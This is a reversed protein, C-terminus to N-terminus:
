AAASGSEQNPYIVSRLRQMQGRRMYQVVNRPVPSRERRVSAAWYGYFRLLSAVGHPKEKVRRLCKLAQFVPHYGLLYEAKGARMQSRWASTEATGSRRHHLVGLEPFSTVEWGQMRAMELAIADQGGCELAIYGGIGEYCQRRFFQIAGAVCREDNWIRPAYYGGQDELITGGTIGLRPNRRFEELLRQYYGPEFSVDADLVGVFQCDLARIAEYGINTASVQRAFSRPGDDESVRILQILRHRAACRRVIEDTRDTSADSVIVWREPQVTQSIVSQITLEINAEENRAPTILAYTSQM